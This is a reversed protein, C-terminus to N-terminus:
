FGETDRDFNAWFDIERDDAAFAEEKEKIHEKLKNKLAKYSLWPKESTSFTEEGNGIWYEMGRADEYTVQFVTIQEQNFILQKKM